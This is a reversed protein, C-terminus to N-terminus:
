LLIKTLSYLESGRICRRIINFIDKVEVVFFHTKEFKVDNSSLEVVFNSPWHVFHGGEDVDSDTLLDVVGLGAMVATLFRVPGQRVHFDRGIHELIVHVDDDFVLSVGHFGDSLCVNGQANKCAESRLFLHDLEVSTAEEEHSRLENTHTVTAWGGNDDDALGVDHVLGLNSDNLLRM